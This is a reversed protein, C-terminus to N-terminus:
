QDEGKKSDSNNVVQRLYAFATKPGTFENKYYCDYSFRIWNLAYDVQEGKLKSLMEFEEKHTNDEITGYKNPMYFSDYENYLTEIAKLMKMKENGQM